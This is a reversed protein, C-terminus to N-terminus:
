VFYGFNFTFYDTAVRSASITSIDMAVVISVVIILAQWLIGGLAM